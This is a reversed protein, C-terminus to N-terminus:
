KLMLYFSIEFEKRFGTVKQSVDEELPHANRRKFGMLEYKVKYWLKEIRNLEPRYPPLCGLMRGIKKAGPPQLAVSGISSNLGTTFRSNSPKKGKLPEVKERRSFIKLLDGLLM